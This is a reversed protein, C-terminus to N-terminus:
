RSARVVGRLTTRWGFQPIAVRVRVVERPEARGDQRVPVRVVWRVTRPDSLALETSAPFTLPLDDGSVSRTGLAPLLRREVFPTYDSRRSWSVVWVLAGGEAVRDRVARVRVRPPPDDDLVTIRGRADGAVLGSVGYATVRTVSRALSDRRSAPVPWSFSGTTTGAPVRVLPRGVTTGDLSRLGGLRVLADRTLAGRVRFPVRAVTRTDGERLTVSGLDLLPARRAPVRPLSRRMASLDLVWVRGQESRAVLDVRALPGLDRAGSLPVRLTQAWLRGPSEAGSPLPALRGAGTPTVTASRGATDTLRVALQVPGRGPDVVTRLDLAAASSVDWPELLRLGGTAGASTWGLEFAPRTPATVPAAPWHTAQLWPDDAFRGCARTSPGAPAVGRCLQSTAGDTPETPVADAGPARLARGAGVAHSLVVASGASPASVRSGDYMPLFATAHRALLRM